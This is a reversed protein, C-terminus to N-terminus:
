GSHALLRPVSAISRPRASPSWPATTAPSSCSATTSSAARRSATTSAASSTDAERIVPEEGSVNGGDPAMFPRHSWYTQVVMFYAQRRADGGDGAPRRRLAATPFPTSPGRVKVEGFRPRHARDAEPLRHRAALRGPRSLASRRGRPLDHCLGEGGDHAAAPPCTSSTPSARRAGQNFETHEPVFPFTHGLLSILGGITTWGNAHFNTLATERRAIADLRPTWSEIGSFFQSHYASLSEVIVLVINLRRGSGALCTQAPPPAALLRASFPESFNSHVFFNANREVFNEFLPKDGFSYVYSPLPVAYFALLGAAALALARKRVPAITGAPARVLAYCAHLLVGAVAAVGALKWIPFGAAISSGARLLSLAASLESSFTVLDSAYLRTAFFYYAFVDAAYVLVIGLGAALSLKSVAQLHPTRRRAKARPAAWLGSLAFLLHRRSHALRRPSPSASRGM